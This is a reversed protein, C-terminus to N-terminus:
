VKRTSDLRDEYGQVVKELHTIEDERMNITHRMIKRSATLKFQLKHLRRRLQSKQKRHKKSDM